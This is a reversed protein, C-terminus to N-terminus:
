LTDLFKTSSDIMLLNAKTIYKLNIVDCLNHDIVSLDGYKQYAKDLSKILETITM